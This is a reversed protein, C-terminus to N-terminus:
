SRYVRCRLFMTVPGLGLLCLSAPEPVPSAMPIAFASDGGGVITGFFNQPSGPSSFALGESNGGPQITGSGSFFFSAATGGLNTGALPVGPLDNFGAINNVVPAKAADIGVNFSSLPDTGTSFVQYAYTFEGANPTYGVFPFNGPGFVAWEVVGAIGLGNEFPSSDSWVGGNPGNGDNLANPHGALGAYAPAAMVGAFVIAVFLSSGSSQIVKHRSYM